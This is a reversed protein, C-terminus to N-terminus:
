IKKGVFGPTITEKNDDYLDWYEELSNNFSMFDGLKIYLKQTKKDKGHAFIYKCGKKECLEILKNFFVKVLAFDNIDIKKKLKQNIAWAGIYGVNKFVSILFDNYNDDIYNFYGKSNFKDIKQKINDYDDYNEINDFIIEKPYKKLITNTLLPLFLMKFMYKDREGNNLKKPNKFLDIINEPFLINIIGICNNEYCIQYHIGKDILWLNDIEEGHDLGLVEGHSYDNTDLIKVLEKYTCEKFNLKDILESSNILSELIFDFLHKM